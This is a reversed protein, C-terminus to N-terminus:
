RERVSGPLWLDKVPESCTSLIMRMSWDGDATGRTGIWCRVSADEALDAVDVGHELTRAARSCFRPTKEKIHGSAAAFSGPRLWRRM